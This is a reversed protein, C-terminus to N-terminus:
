GADATPPQDDQADNRPASDDWIAQLELDTFTAESTDGIALRISTLEAATAAM